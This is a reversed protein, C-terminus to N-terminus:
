REKFLKLAQYILGTMSVVAIAQNTIQHFVWFEKDSLDKLIFIRNFYQPWPISEPHFQQIFWYSAEGLSRILWFSFLAVWFFRPNEIRMLILALIIWLFSFVFLDGWVFAGYPLGFWYLLPEFDAFKGLSIQYASLSALFISILLIVKLLSKYNTNFLKGM